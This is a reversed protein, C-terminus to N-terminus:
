NPCTTSTSPAPRLALMAPPARGFPARESAPLSTRKRADDGPLTTAHDNAYHRVDHIIQMPNLDKGSAYAPCFTKAAPARRAPGATSSTEGPSIPTTSLALRSWTLITM